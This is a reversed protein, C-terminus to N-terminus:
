CLIIVANFLTKEFHTFRAVTSIRESMSAYLDNEKRETLVSFGESLERESM